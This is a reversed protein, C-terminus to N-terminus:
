PLVFAVYRATKWQAEGRAAMAKFDYPDLHVFEVLAVEESLTLAVAGRDAARLTGELNMEPIRRALERELEDRLRTLEGLQDRHAWPSEPGTGALAKQVIKQVIQARLTHLERLEAQLAPYRGQMVADRQAALGEAELAKRRLVLDFAARVTERSKDLHDLALSLFTERRRRFSALFAARKRESGMSLIKDIIGDDIEAGKQMLALAHSGR